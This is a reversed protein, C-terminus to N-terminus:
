RIAMGSPQLTCIEMGLCSDQRYSPTSTRTQASQASLEEILMELALRVRHVCCARLYGWLHRCGTVRAAVSVGCDDAALGCM